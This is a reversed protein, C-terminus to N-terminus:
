SPDVSRHLGEGTNSYVCDAKVTVENRRRLGTLAIRNDKFVQAPDLAEDNLIIETVNDAILDLFTESGPEAGFCITTTSGFTRADRTLDLQVHYSIPASVISKREEAEVRTLNAGPM